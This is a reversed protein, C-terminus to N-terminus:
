LSHQQKTLLGICVYLLVRWAKLYRPPTPPLFLCSVNDLQIQLPSHIESSPTVLEEHGKM